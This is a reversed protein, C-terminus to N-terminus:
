LNTLSLNLLTLRSKQKQSIHIYFIIVYIIDKFIQLFHTFVFNDVILTLGCIMFLVIDTLFGKHVLLVVQHKIKKFVVKNSFQKVIACTDYAKNVSSIPM